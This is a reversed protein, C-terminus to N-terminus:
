RTQLPQQGWMPAQHPAEMPIQGPPASVVADGQLSPGGTAPNIGITSGPARANPDSVGNGSVITGDEMTTIWFGNACQTTHSNPTVFALWCVIQALIM